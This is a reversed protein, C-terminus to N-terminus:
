DKNLISNMLKHIEPGITRGRPKILQSPIQGTAPLKHRKLTNTVTEVEFASNHQV